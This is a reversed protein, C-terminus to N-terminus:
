RIANTTDGRIPPRMQHMLQRIQETQQSLLQQVEVPVQGAQTTGMGTQSQGQEMRTRPGDEEEPEEEAQAQEELLRKKGAEIARNRAARAAFGSAWDLLGQGAKSKPPCLLELKRLIHNGVSGQPLKHRHRDVWANRERFRLDDWGPRHRGFYRFRPQQAERDPQIPPIVEWPAPEASAQAKPRPAARQGRRKRRLPAPRRKRPLAPRERARKASQLRVGERPASVLRLERVPSTSRLRVGARPTPEPPAPTAGPLRLGDSSRWSEVTKAGRRDRLPGKRSGKAASRPSRAM